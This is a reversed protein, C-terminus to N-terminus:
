IERSVGPELQVGREEIRKRLAKYRGDLDRLADAGFVDKVAAFFQNEEFDVHRDVSAKLEEFKRMWEPSGVTLADLSAILHKMQMHDQVARDAFTRTSDHARAETYLGQEEGQAHMLLDQRIQQFLERQKSPNNSEIVDDMLSAVQAHEGELTSLVGIKGSLAAGVKSAAGKVKASAKGMPNEGSRDIALLAGLSRAFDPQGTTRTAPYLLQV